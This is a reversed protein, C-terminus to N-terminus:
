HISSHGNREIFLCDHNMYSNISLEKKKVRVKSALGFVDNCVKLINKTTNKDKSDLWMRGM